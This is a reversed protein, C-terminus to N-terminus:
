CEAMVVRETTRRAYIVQLMALALVVILAPIALLGFFGSIGLHLSLLEAGLLAGSIGGFRGFGLMWSMGTARCPTPYFDAALYGMSTQGANMAGGALFILLSLLEPRHAQGVLFLFVGTLLFTTMVVKRPNLKAMLWGAIITGIVGGLPFLATLLAAKSTSFGADKMLLPMWGTLIYFILLGMFYTLWLMLSGLLYPRSLIQGIASHGVTMRDEMCIIQQIGTLPDRMVRRVTQLVKGMPTGSLLMYRVSEPLWLLLFVALILPAWGGAMLVSRWGHLPILWSAMLGGLAAGAPFGCFVISMLLARRQSPAYEAILTLGNSMAAGLGLGTAFRFVVLTQVSDAMGTVLNWGGFFAVSLVLVVRRGFRDALPGAGIAGVALGFLAASVVPALAPRSIGWDAILSPAIYGIAATDFGDMIVVLFCLVLVLWQYASFRRSDILLQLDVTGKFDM